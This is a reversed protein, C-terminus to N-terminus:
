ISINFSADYESHMNLDLCMLGKGISWVVCNCTIFNILEVPLM